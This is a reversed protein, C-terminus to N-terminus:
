PVLVNKSGIAGRGNFGYSAQPESQIFFLLRIEGARYNM